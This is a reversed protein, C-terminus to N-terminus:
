ANRLTTLQAVTQQVVFKKSYQQLGTPPIEIVGYCSVGGGMVAGYGNIPWINVPTTPFNSVQANTSSYVASVAPLNGTADGEYPPQENVEGYVRVSFGFSAM